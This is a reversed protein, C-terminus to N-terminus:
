QKSEKEIVVLYKRGLQVVKIARECTPVTGEMKMWRNSNFAKSSNHLTRVALTASTEGM